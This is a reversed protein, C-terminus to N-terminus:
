TLFDIQNYELEDKGLQNIKLIGSGGKTCQLKLELFGLNSLSNSLLYLQENIYNLKEQDELQFDVTLSKRQVSNIDIVVCGLHNLDLEITIKLQSDDLEPKARKKYKLRIKAETINEEYGLPIIFVLQEYGNQKITNIRSNILQQAFMQEVIQKISKELVKKELAWDKNKVNNLFFDLLKVLPALLEGNFSKKNETKLSSSWAHLDQNCVTLDLIRLKTKLKQADLDSFDLLQKITQNIGVLESIDSSLFSSLDMILKLPEVFNNKGQLYSNLLSILKSNLPLKNLQCFLFTEVLSNLEPISNLNEKLACRTITLINERSLASQKNYLLLVINKTFQNNPLSLSNLIQDINISNIEGSDVTLSQNQSFIAGGRDIKKLIFQGQQNIQAICADFQEGPLLYGSPINANVVIGEVKLVAREGEVNLVEVILKRNNFLQQWSYEKQVFVCAKRDM